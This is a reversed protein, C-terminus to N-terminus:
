SNPSAQLRLAFQRQVVTVVVVPTTAPETLKESPAVRRPVVVSFLLPTAVKEVVDRPTPLWVMVAAKWALVFKLALEAVRM